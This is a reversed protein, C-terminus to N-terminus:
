ANKPKAKEVGYYTFYVIILWPLLAYAYMRGNLPFVSLSYIFELVLAGLIFHKGIKIGSLSLVCGVLLIFRVAIVSATQYIGIEQQWKAFYIADVSFTISALILFLSLYKQM